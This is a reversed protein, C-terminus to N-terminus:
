ATSSAMPMRTRMATPMPSRASRAHHSGGGCRQPCRRWRTSSLRRSRRALLWSPLRAMVGSGQLRHALRRLPPSRAPPDSFRPDSFDTLAKALRATRVPPTKCWECLLQHPSIELGRRKLANEADTGLSEATEEHGDANIEVSLPVHFVRLNNKTHWPNVLGPAAHDDAGKVSVKLHVYEWLGYERLSYHDHLDWSLCTISLHNPEVTPTGDVVGVFHTALIKKIAAITLSDHFRLPFSCGARDYFIVTTARETLSSFGVAM